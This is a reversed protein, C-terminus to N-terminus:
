GIRPLGLTELNIISAAYNVPLDDPFVAEM